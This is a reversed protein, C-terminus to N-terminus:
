ATTTTNGTTVTTSAATTTTVPPTATTTPLLTTTSLLTTTTPAPRTTTTTAPRTTTTPAPETTTTTPAPKTTTTTPAPKTTTTTLAPKTTTTTLVTTTTPVTTPRMTTTTTPVTTTTPKTITTPAPKTTTPVPKATTPVPKAATTPVPKATTPVPKAATTPVPKATTTPVPKAATTPVPKATTPVPKAATTPVPKATTPVPKATTPVPKVTTPVPKAATTPVPKTTTSSPPNTGPVSTPPVPKTTVPTPSAVTSSPVNAPVPPSTPAGSPPPLTTTPLTTVTTMLQTVTAPTWSVESSGFSWDMVGHDGQAPPRPGGVIQIIDGARSFHFFTEARAPSLNVCGHSVNDIGQLSVDWPAAHVYEGSDSIHVDWYVFENYGAPSDVPIGVTSSIMHVVSERDLVVHTGDMTPWRDSGASVPWSFVVQGNDTVTMQHTALDVTSIHSDGIVFATSVTGQGWEGGGIDWGNLDGTVEVQEGVPWYSSPRFHLEVASFWHWGGAVPQSMSIHLRSLVAQQAAYTGVPESFTFVIPQGVGVAIGPSPFVNATVPQPAPATTFIDSGQASLGDGAAVVYNVSYTSGPWLRGTSRWENAASNLTGRLVTRDSAAVVRVDELRGVRARLTVVTSLKQRTAGNAPSVVVDSVLQALASAHTTTSTTAPGTTRPAGQAQSTPVGDAAHKGSHRAASVGAVIAVVLLAGVVAIGAV